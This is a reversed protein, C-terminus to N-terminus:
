NSSDGPDGAHAMQARIFPDPDAGLVKGDEVVVNTPATYAAYADSGTAETTTAPAHHHRSAAFSPSAVAATLAVTSAIALVFKKM